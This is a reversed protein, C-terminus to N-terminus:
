ATIHLAPMEPLSKVCQAVMGVGLPTHAPAWQQILLSSYQLHLLQSKFQHEYTRFFPAVPLSKDQFLVM